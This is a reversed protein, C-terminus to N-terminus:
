VSKYDDDHHVNGDEKQKLAPGSAKEYAAMLKSNGGIAEDESIKIPIKNTVSDPLMKLMVAVFLTTAGWLICKWFTEPDLESTEFIFFAYTCVSWQVGIILLMVSLFYLNNFFCTFVNYERAGVVRCNLENFFCLFVFTNFIITFHRKKAEGAATQDTAQTSKDYWIDNGEEDVQAFMFKGLYIVLFMVFCNWLTVGYIQRWIYRDLISGGTKKQPPQRVVATMPPSTALALAGLTDMILNIWLLQTANFPSETLFVLGFFIILLISLNVTIQFQLFRKINTYINRGWMMARLCSNFDSNTLVMSAKEKTLATGSGMAFSVHSVKFAEIDNIGDGIVAVQKGLDQLLQCVVLKDQPNSRAIVKVGAIEQEFKKLDPTFRGATQDSGKIRDMFDSASVVMKDQTDQDLTSYNDPLIGADIAVAKATELHEGTLMRVTM